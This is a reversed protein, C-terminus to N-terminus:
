AVATGFVSGIGYTVASAAVVIAFQRLAAPLPPKDSSRGVVAGVALSAVATFAVSALKAASGETLFWPVLPVLAGAAFYVLSTLAATMPSGLEDPNMGFLANASFRLFRPEDLPLETSAKQATDRAIGAAELRDTLQDLILEPDRRVLERLRGLIGEFLEVQSRVSIWEGAAMSLAGAILSAFGALRVSSRSADAGAVALIVCVNSVLGDNVGLVAARAAGRVVAVIRAELEAADAHPDGAESQPGVRAPVTTM